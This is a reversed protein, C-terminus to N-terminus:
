AGGTGDSVRHCLEAALHCRSKALPPPGSRERSLTWIHHIHDESWYVSCNDHWFQNTCGKHALCDSLLNSVRCLSEFIASVIQGGFEPLCIIRPTVLFRGSDHRRTPVTSGGGSTQALSVLQAPLLSALALWRL